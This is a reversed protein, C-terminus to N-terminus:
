LCPRVPHSALPVRPRQARRDAANRDSHSCEGLRLLEGMRSAKEKAASSM